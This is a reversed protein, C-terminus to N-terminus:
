SELRWQYIKVIRNYVMDRYEQESLGEKGYRVLPDACTLVSVVVTEDLLEGNEDRIIEVAPTLMM